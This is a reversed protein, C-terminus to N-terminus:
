RASARQNAPAELRLVAWGITRLLGDVKLSSRRDHRRRDADYPGYLQRRQMIRRNHLVRITENGAFARTLYEHLSVRNDAVIVVQRAIRRRDDHSTAGAPPGNFPRATRWSPADELFGSLSSWTTSGCAPCTHSGIEFCEDCDLCLAVRRLPLHVRPSITRLRTIM